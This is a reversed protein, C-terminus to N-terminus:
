KEEWSMIQGPAGSPAVVIIRHRIGGCFGTSEIRRIDGSTDFFQLLGTRQRGIAGLFGAVAEISEFKQDDETGQIGDLGNRVEFFTEIQVPTLEALSSLTQETAHQVSIKGSYWVTFLEQWGEKAALLPALNMIAEMERIHKIPRNAPYGPRGARTYEGREAGNLSLLDDPDIWDQLGDIAAESQKLDAGWSAFLKLFLPRGGQLIWFNPNIRSAENAIRVDFGETEKTGRQLLPNGPKIEPNLGFALGTLAMQRAIFKREARSENEIWSNVIGAALVVLGAMFALCWLVIPLAVARPKHRPPKM